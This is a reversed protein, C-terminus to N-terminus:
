RSRDGRRRRSDGRKHSRALVGFKALHRPNETNGPLGTRAIHRGNGAFVKSLALTKELRMVGRASEWIMFGAKRALSLMKENTALTYGIIRRIGAAAARCELKTLMLKALGKGQWPEAVSISVEALSPDAARVYRAEGIVTERGDVFIEAVLAVHNAYDVQTFQRLLESSPESVPHMFRSCRADASLDLFFAVMLERDQPLVPRIVVREGDTLHVVDILEAPYRHTQYTMADLAWDRDRSPMM